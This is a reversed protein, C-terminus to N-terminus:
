SLRKVGLIKRVFGGKGGDTGNITYSIKKAVLKIKNETESYTVGDRTESTREASPVNVVSTDELFFSDGFKLNSPCEGETEIEFAEYRHKEVDLQSKADQQLQKYNTIYPRELFIPEINRVSGSNGVAGSTATLQKTFHLNDIALRTRQNLADFAGITLLKEVASLQGDSDPTFRGSGDYSEQCQISIMKLNKWEFVETVELEPLIINPVANVWRKAIRARYIKFNSLPLSIFEWEENFAVTFDQVVCNDSTDYCTCRFKFKGTFPVVKENNGVATLFYYKFKVFFALSEMVGLEESDTANFGTNGLPTLHMGNTDISPNKYLSGVTYGVPLYNTTPYPVKFCAWAGIQYYNPSTAAAGIIKDLASFHYEWVSASKTGYKITSTSSGTSKLSDGIGDESFIHTAPHFCDNSKDATGSDLSWASGTWRYNKGENIVAIQTDTTLSNGNNFPYIQKWTSGNYQMIKNANSSFTGTVSGKVLVRFGRYVNNDMKLQSPINSNTEVKCDVWTRYHDKDRIVLNSDWCGHWNFSSNNTWNLATNNSHDTDDDPNSGSSKMLKYGDSGNNGGDGSTVETLSSTYPSYSLNGALNGLKIEDWQSQTWTGSTTTNAQYKKGDTYVVRAGTPYSENNKWDPILQFEEKYSRFKSSNTPMSGYGRAGKAFIVSGTEDELTGSTSYIPLTNTPNTITPISTQNSSNGSSFAHFFIQNAAFKSSTLTLDDTFKLEYFDGAGGASVSSGLKNIMDNIGDYTYTEAVGFDMNNANWKPLENYYTGSSLAQDHHDVLVQKGGKSGNYQECIDDVVDFASKYYFQKAFHVQQLHRELGMLNLILRVGENITKRQELSEVEYLKEVTNNNKDSLKIYIRDFQNILPTTGQNEKTIFQGDRANLQVIATNVEGTGTDTMNEITIVNTTIDVPTIVSTSESNDYIYKVQYTWTAM